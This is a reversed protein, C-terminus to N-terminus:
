EGYAIAAGRVYGTLEEDSFDEIAAMLGDLDDRDYHAFDWQVRCWNVIMFRLTRPGPGKASLVGHGKETAIRVPLLALDVLTRTVAEDLPTTPPLLALPAVAAASMKWAPTAM